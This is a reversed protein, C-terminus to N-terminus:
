TEPRSIFTIQNSRVFQDKIAKSAIVKIDSLQTSVIITIFQSSVFRRPTVSNRYQKSEHFCHIGSTLTDHLLMFTFDVYYNGSTFNAIEQNESWVFTPASDLLLSKVYNQGCYCPEDDTASSNINKDLRTDVM